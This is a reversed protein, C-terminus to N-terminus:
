HSPSKPNVCTEKFDAWLKAIQLLEGLNNTWKLGANYPSRAIKVTPKLMPQIRKVYKQNLAVAEALSEEMFRRSTACHTSFTSSDYYKEFPSCQSEINFDNEVLQDWPIHCPHDMAAWPDM